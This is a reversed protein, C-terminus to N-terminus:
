KSLPSYNWGFEIAEKTLLYKPNMEVAPTALIDFGKPLTNKIYNLVYLMNDSFQKASVSVPINGEALVNDLSTCFYKDRKDFNYPKNKTGKVYNKANVVEGNNNKIFVEFDSGITVNNIIAEM